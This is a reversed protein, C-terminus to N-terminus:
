SVALITAKKIMVGEVGNHNGKPNSGVGTSGVGTPDFNTNGKDSQALVSDLNKRPKFIGNYRDLIGTIDVQKGKYSQFAEDIMDRLYQPMNEIFYEKVKSLDLKRTDKSNEIDSWILTDRGENPHGRVGDYKPPHVVLKVMPDRTPVLGWSRAVNVGRGGDHESTRESDYQVAVFGREIQTSAFIDLLSFRSGM